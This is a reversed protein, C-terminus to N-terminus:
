RQNNREEDPSPSPSNVHPSPFLKHADDLKSELSAQRRAVVVTLAQIMSSRVVDVYPANMEALSIQM